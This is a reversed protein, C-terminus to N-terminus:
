KKTDLSDKVKKDPTKSQFKPAPVFGMTKSFTETGMQLDDEKSEKKPNLQSSYLTKNSKPRDKSSNKEENVAKQTANDLKAYLKQAKAPFLNQYELFAQRAYNRTENNADSILKEIMIEFTGVNKELIQNPYNKLILDLYLACKTRVPNAKSSIEEFIKPIFKASKVNEILSCVCQHGVESLIKNANSILKILADKNMLKDSIGELKEQCVESIM